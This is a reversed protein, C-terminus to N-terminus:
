NKDRHRSLTTFFSMVASVKSIANSVEALLQQFKGKNYLDILAKVQNSPPNKVNSNEAPVSILRKELQDFEDGKIGTVRQKRLFTKLM